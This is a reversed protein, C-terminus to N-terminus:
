EADLLDVCCETHEDIDPAAKVTCLGLQKLLPIRHILTSVNMEMEIKVVDVTKIRYSFFMLTILRRKKYYHDLPRIKECDM